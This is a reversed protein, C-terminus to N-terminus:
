ETSDVLTALVQAAKFYQEQHVFHRWLLDYRERSVPEHLLYQELYVTQVQPPCSLSEALGRVCIFVM